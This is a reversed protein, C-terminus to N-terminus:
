HDQSMRHRSRRSNIFETIHLNYEQAYLWNSNDAVYDRKM